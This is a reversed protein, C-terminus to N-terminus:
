DRQPRAGNIPTGAPNMPAERSSTVSEPHERVEKQFRYYSVRPRGRERLILAKRGDCVVIWDGTKMKLKKM